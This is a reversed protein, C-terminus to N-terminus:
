HDHGEHHGHGKHAKQHKEISCPCRAARGQCHACDDSGPPCPCAYDDPSQEFKSFCKESCFSYTKGDYDALVTTEDTTEIKMECVPDFVKEAVAPTALGTCTLLIFSFLISLIFTPRM